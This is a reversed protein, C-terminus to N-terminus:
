MNFKRNNFNIYFDIKKNNFTIPTSIKSVKKNLKGM